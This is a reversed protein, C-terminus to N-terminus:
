GKRIELHLIVFERTELVITGSTPGRLKRGHIRSRKLLQVPEGANWLM